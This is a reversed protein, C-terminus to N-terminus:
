EAWERDQDEYYDEEGYEEAGESVEDAMFSVEEENDFAPLDGIKKEPDRERQQSFQRSQWVKALAEEMKKKKSRALMVVVLVVILGIVMLGGLGYLIYTFTSSEEDPVEEPDKPDVVTVTYTQSARDKGDDITVEFKFDKRVTGGMLAESVKFTVKGDDDITVYNESVSFNLDDAWVPDIDYSVTFRYVENVKASHKTEGTLQPQLYKMQVTITFSINTSQGWPDTATIIIKHTGINSVIPIFEITGATRHINFLDTDDSYTVGSINNTLTMILDLQEGIEVVQAPILAMIPPETARPRTVNMRKITEGRGDGVTITLKVEGEFEDEFQLEIEWSGLMDVTVSDADDHVVKVTLEDKKTDPDSINDELDILHEKVTAALSIDEVQISPPQNGFMEFSVYNNTENSEPIINYPDAAIIYQSWGPKPTIIINLNTEDGQEMYGVDYDLGVKNESLVSEWYVNFTIDDARLAGDNHAFISIKTSATTSVNLGLSSDLTIAELWLDAAIVTVPKTVINNEEDAEPVSNEPDVVAVIGTIGEKAMWITSVEKSSSIGITGANVLSGILNEAEFSLEYFGMKVNDASIEGTNHIMATLTVDTGIGPSPDSLTISGAVWLDAPSTTVSATITRPKLGNAHFTVTPVDGLNMLYPVSVRGQDNSTASSYKGNLEITVRAGSVANSNTDEVTMNLWRNGEFLTIGTNKFNRPFSTWIDLAPDGLFNYGYLNCKAGHATPTPAPHMLGPIIESGYQDMTKYFADAARGDMQ